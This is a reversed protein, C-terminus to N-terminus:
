VNAIVGLYLSIKTKGSLSWGSGRLLLEEIRQDLQRIISSMIRKLKTGQKVAFHNSKLAFVETEPETSDSDPALKEFVGFFTLNLQYSPFESALIRQCLQKFSPFIQWLCTTDASKIRLNRSYIRLSKRFASKYIKWSDEPPHIQDLHQEFESTSSFMLQCVGCSLKAISEGSHLNRHRDMLGKSNTQFDCHPCKFFPKNRHVSQIHRKMDNSRTTQYKCGSSESCAFLKNDQSKSNVEHIRKIHRLLHSKYHTSYECKDCNFKPKGTPRKKNNELNMTGHQSKSSVKHNSKIHRILHTKYHTSFKCHDCNFKPKGTPRKKNDDELNM